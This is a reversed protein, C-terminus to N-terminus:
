GAALYWRAAIIGIVEGIIGGCACLWLNDLIRQSNVAANEKENVTNDDSM